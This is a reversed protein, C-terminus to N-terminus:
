LHLHHLEEDEKGYVSAELSPSLVWKQTLMLEYEAEVRLETLGDEGVFLNADM